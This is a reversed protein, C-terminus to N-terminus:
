VACGIDGDSKCLARVDKLDKGCAKVVVKCTFDHGIGIESNEWEPGLRSIFFYFLDSLDEPYKVIAARFINTIITEKLSRSGNGEAGEM